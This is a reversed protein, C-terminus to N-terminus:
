DVIQAARALNDARLSVETGNVNVQYRGTDEIYKIVKGECGNLAQGSDSTLGCVIISNGTDFAAADCISAPPAVSGIAKASKARDSKIDQPLLRLINPIDVAMIQELATMKKTDLKPLKGLDYHVLKEKLQNMEPLDELALNHLQAVEKYINPLNELLKRKEKDKGFAMTSMPM